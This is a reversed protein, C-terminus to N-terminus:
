EYSSEPDLPYALDLYGQFRVLIALFAASRIDSVIPQTAEWSDGTGPHTFRAYLTERNHVAVLSLIYGFKRPVNANYLSGVIWRDM